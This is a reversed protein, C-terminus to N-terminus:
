TAAIIRCDCKATKEIKLYMTRNFQIKLIEAQTEKDDHKILNYLDAVPVGYSRFRVIDKLTKLEGEGYWRYGNDSRLKAKLLGEREYYLVTARSIGCTKASKTVTLM